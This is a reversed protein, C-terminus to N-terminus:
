TPTGRMESPTHGTWRKVARRFERVDNFGIQSGVAAITLELDQLLELARETRVRDHVASFSTSEEALQRRLTRESLHLAAAVDTMQPNDRLRPRLQREVAATTEGRMSMAALQAQCLALARPNEYTTIILESFM